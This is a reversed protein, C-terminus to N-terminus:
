CAPSSNLALVAGRVARNASAHACEARHQLRQVRGQGAVARLPGSGLRGQLALSGVGHRPLAGVPHLEVAASEPEAPNPAHDDGGAVVLATCPQDPEAAAATLFAPLPAGSAYFDHIRFRARLAATFTADTRRLLLLGPKAARTAASAM